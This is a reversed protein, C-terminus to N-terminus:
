PLAIGLTDTGPSGPARHARAISPIWLVEGRADVVLPTRGRRSAPLRRELFLKKVEKTGASLRIRDGPRRARVTLPFRLEGVEFREAHHLTAAVPARGVEEGWVVRLRAGGLLAEGEGPGADPIRLPVDAPTQASARLVLRGLERDLVWAGGLELRRGSPAEAAFAVASRTAQADLRAGLEVAVHRLIRAQVAPHLRALAERDLSTGRDVAEPRLTALLAPLVSQWGAEDERALDALRVLSRRAGPAVLREIEPLIRGRLANRAFRVHRNTPDERWSLRAGTAYAELEERWFGLLPRRIAPPRQAPIGALGAPGTGRLVRFLVTEAQDDAHHATLVWRAGVRARVRELFAYRAGRADEESGFPELARESHAAVGWARCLGEVWRADAASGPRMAHDLHAAHLRGPHHGIGFRLLHLLVVSDLGGSLAVLVPDEPRLGGALLLERVGRVVDSV